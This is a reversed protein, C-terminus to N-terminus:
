QVPHKGAEAPWADAITQAIIAAGKATPHGDVVPNFVLVGHQSAERLAPTANIFRIGRQQCLTGLYGPFDNEQWALLAADGKLRGHWVRIKSPLFVFAPEVSQERCAAAWDDLAAGLAGRETQSLSSPAPPYPPDLMVPMDAGAESTFTANAYLRRGHDRSFRARLASMTALFLSNEERALDPPRHQQLRTFEEVTKALAAESWVMLARKCSASRGFHRLFAAQNRPATSAVGLNKVRLSTKASIQDTITSGDALSGLEVFSDGVVALDWEALHPPNRFGEDDYRVTFTAEDVYAVDRSRKMQLAANLPRGTWSDPGSRKLFRDGDFLVEPMRYYIPCDEKKLSLGFVAEWRVPARSAALEPLALALVALRLLWLNVSSFRSLSAEDRWWAALLAFIGSAVLLSCAPLVFRMSLLADRNRETWWAAALLFLCAVLRLPWREQTRIVPADM